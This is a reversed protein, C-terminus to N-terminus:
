KMQTKERFERRKKNLQGLTAICSHLDVVLTTWPRRVTDDLDVSCRDVDDVANRGNDIDDHPDANEADKKAEEEPQLLLFNRESYLITILINLTNVENWTSCENCHKILQHILEGYNFLNTSTKLKM